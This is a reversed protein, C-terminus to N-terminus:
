LAVFFSAPLVFHTLSSLKPLRPGFILITTQIIPILCQVFPSALVM